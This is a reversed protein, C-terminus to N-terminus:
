NWWKKRGTWSDKKNWSDKKKWSDKGWSDKKDWSDKKGWSDTGWTKGQNKWSNDRGKTWKGQNKDWTKTWSKQQNKGQGKGKGKGRGKGKGQKSGKGKSDKQGGKDGADWSKTKVPWVSFPPKRKDSTVKTKAAAKPQSKAKAKPSPAKARAAKKQARLDKVARLKWAKKSENAERPVTAMQDKLKQQSAPVAPPAKEALAQRQKKSLMNKIRYPKPQRM